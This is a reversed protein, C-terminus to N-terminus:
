TDKLKTRVKNLHDTLIYSNRGTSLGSFIHACRNKSFGFLFAAPPISPAKLVWPPGLLHGPPPLAGSNQKQKQKLCALVTISLIVIPDFIDAIM